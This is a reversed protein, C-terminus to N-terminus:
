VREHVGAELDKGDSSVENFKMKAEVIADM